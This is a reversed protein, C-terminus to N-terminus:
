QATGRVGAAAMVAEIESLRVRRRSNGLRYCPIDGNNVAGLLLWYRVGLATAAGKITLFPEFDGSSRIPESQQTV